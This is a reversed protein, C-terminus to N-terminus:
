GNKKGRKKLYDRCMARLVREEQQWDWHETGPLLMTYYLILRVAQDEDVGAWMMSATCSLQTNHVGDEGDGGVRMAELRGFVDIPPKREQHEALRTFPNQDAGDRRAASRSGLLPVQKEALWQELDDLRYTTNIKHAVTVERWGGGKTNHTGPMRLLAVRHTPMPDAGLLWALTKLMREVREHQGPKAPKTLRWYCHLGGGSRHVRSPPCPLTMVLSMVEEPSVFLHKFDIDCFLNPLERAFEKKRPHGRTMTAVSFFLGYCPEDRRKIFSGIQGVDRTLVFRHTRKREREVDDPNLLSCVWMPEETLALFEQVFDLAAYIGGRDVASM